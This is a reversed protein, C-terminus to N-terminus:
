REATTYNPYCGGPPPSVARADPPLAFCAVVLLIVMLMTIHNKM